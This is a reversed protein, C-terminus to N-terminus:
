SSVEGPTRDVEVLSQRLSIRKWFLSRTIIWKVKDVLPDTLLFDVASAEPEATILNRLDVYEADSLGAGRAAVSGFLRGINEFRGDSQYEHACTKFCLYSTARSVVRFHIVVRESGPLDLGPASETLMM